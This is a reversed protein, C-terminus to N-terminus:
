RGNRRELRPICTTFNERNKTRSVIGYVQTHTHTHSQRLNTQHYQSSFCFFLLGNKFEEPTHPRDWSSKNTTKNHYYHKEKAVSYCRRWGKPLVTDAYAHADLAILLVEVAGARGIQVKFIDNELFPEMTKLLQM